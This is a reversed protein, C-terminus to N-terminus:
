CAVPCRIQKKKLAVGFVVGKGQLSFIQTINATVQGAFLLKM